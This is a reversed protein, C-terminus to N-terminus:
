ADLVDQQIQADAGRRVSNRCLFSGRRGNGGAIGPAGLFIGQRAVHRAFSRADHEGNKMAHYGVGGAPAFRLELSQFEDTELNVLGFVFMKPAVNLNYNIGGRKANATTLSTGSANSSSYIQTYNVMIKDRSTARVANAGM